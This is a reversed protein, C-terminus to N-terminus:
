QLRSHEAVPSFWSASKTSSAWFGRDAALYFGFVSYLALFAAEPQKTGLALCCSYGESESGQRDSEGTRVGETRVKKWLLPQFLIILMANAVNRPPFCFWAITALSSTQIRSGAERYAISRSKRGCESFISRMLLYATYFTSSPPIYPILM